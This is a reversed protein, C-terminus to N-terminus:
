LSRITCFSVILQFRCEPSSYLLPCIYTFIQWEFGVFFSLFFDLPYFCLRFTIPSANSTPFQFSKPCLIWYIKTSTFTHTSTLIKTAFNRCNPRHRSHMCTGLATEPTTITRRGIFLIFQTWSLICLYGLIQVTCHAGNPSLTHLTRENIFSKVDYEDRTLMRFISPHRFTDVDFAGRYWIILSWASVSVRECLSLSRLYLLLFPSSFCFLVCKASKRNMDFACCAVIHVYIKGFPSCVLYCSRPHWHAHKREYLM